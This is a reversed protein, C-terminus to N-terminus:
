KNQVGTCRVILSLSVSAFQAVALFELARRQPQSISSDSAKIDYIGIFHNMPIEPAVVKLNM